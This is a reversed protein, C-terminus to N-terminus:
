VHGLMEVMGKPFVWAQIMVLVLLSFNNLIWVQGMKLSLFTAPAQVFCIESYLHGIKQVCAESAGPDM